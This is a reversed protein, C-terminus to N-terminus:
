TRLGELEVKNHLFVELAKRYMEHTGVDYWIGSLPYGYVPEQCILWKIFRGLEDSSGGCEIYEMFRSLVKRPFLYIGTSVLTSEPSSPKEEMSIIRFDEDIKVVGYNRALELNGVDYLGIVTSGSRRRFEDVLGRLDSTFVNDGAVVLCDDALGSVVNALARLAGPKEEEGRSMDYVIELDISPYQKAWKEFDDKFKLNASVIIKCVEDLKLLKDIIFDIIRKRGLPLLPKAIEKTIPWLRKAYGGALIIAILDGALLKGRVRYLRLIWAKGIM